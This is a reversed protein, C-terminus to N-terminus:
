IYKVCIYFVLMAIFVLTVSINVYSNGIYLYKLREVEHFFLM